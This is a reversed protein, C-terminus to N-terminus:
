PTFVLYVYHVSLGSFFYINIGQVILESTYSALGARNSAVCTYGGAHEESVSDIGLVSTKKGFRGVKFGLNEDVPKGNLMWSFNIPLDGTNISCQVTASEGLFLPKDGFSYPQIQPMVLAFIIYKYKM